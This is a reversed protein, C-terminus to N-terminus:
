LGVQRPKIYWFGVQGMRALHAEYLCLPIITFLSYSWAVPPVVGRIVLFSIGMSFFFCLVVRQFGMRVLDLAYPSKNQKEWLLIVVGLTCALLPGAGPIFFSAGLLLHLVTMRMRVGSPCGPLAGRQPFTIILKPM